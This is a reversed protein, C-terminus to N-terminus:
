LIVIVVMTLNLHEAKWRYITQYPLSSGLIGFIRRFIYFHPLIPLDWSSFLELPRISLWSGHVFSDYAKLVRVIVFRCCRIKWILRVHCEYWINEKRALRIESFSTVQIEPDFFWVKLKLPLRNMDLYHYM